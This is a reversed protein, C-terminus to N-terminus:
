RRGGRMTSEYDLGPFELRGKQFPLGSCGAGSQRQMRNGSLEALQESLAKAM